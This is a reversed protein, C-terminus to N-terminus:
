AKLLLPNEHVLNIKQDLRRYVLKKELISGRNKVIDLLWNVRKSKKKLGIGSTLSFQAMIKRVILLEKNLKSEAVIIMKWNDKM